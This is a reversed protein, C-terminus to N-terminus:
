QQFQEDTQVKPIDCVQQSSLSRLGSFNSRLLNARKIRHPIRALFLFPNLAAKNSFFRINSLIVPTKRFKSYKSQLVLGGKRSSRALDSPQLSLTQLNSSKCLKTLNKPKIVNFRYVPYLQKFKFLFIFYYLSRIVKDILFFPKLIFPNNINKM